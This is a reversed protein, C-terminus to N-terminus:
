YDTEVEFRACHADDFKHENGHSDIVVVSKLRLGHSSYGTDLITEVITRLKSYAPRSKGTSDAEVWSRFVDVISGNHRQTYTQGFEDSAHAGFM